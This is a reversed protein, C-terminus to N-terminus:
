WKGRVQLKVSSYRGESLTTSVSRQLVTQELRAELVWQRTLRYQLNLYYRAGKGGLAPISVAAFLDNEFAFVRTDFNDTDFVVYRVSGSLPFELAKANVEQYALFGRTRPAQGPRFRSWEARSRMEVYRNVKYSAHLRLRQRQETLLGSIGSEAPPNNQKEESLWQVYTSFVKNPQWLFRGVYEHGVSPASASSRLWPHRWLDAYFNFKYPKSPQIEVGTYLGVENDAGTTEAFSNAYIAQYQPQYHRYLVAMRVRRDLGIIAGNIGAFGGNQSRANEGFLLYNRWRYQYDLSIGTLQQGTFQYLRYPAPTPMWPDDYRIHLANFAVHGRAHKWEVSGGVLTEGIARENEIESATRHLGSIQLSTFAIEGFGVDTSDENVNINADRMRRSAFLTIDFGSPRSSKSTSVSIGGGRLYIGEGFAGGYTRLKAGGRIVQTSEASKRQAFNTQILLGQGLRVTFDGLALTRLRRNAPNQILFYASYFDFGQRNSGRFFAEGPDKEGLIGYRLRNQFNHRLRVAMQSPDGESGNPTRQPIAQGWRALFDSDGSRFGERWSVAREDLGGDPITVYPLLRRIDDVDWGEISQLEYLNLLSGVSERHTLLNAIQIDTLLYTEELENRTAKNLNLPRLRLQELNEIFLQADSESAGENDRFFNELLESLAPDESQAHATTSFLCILVLAICAGWLRISHSYCFM